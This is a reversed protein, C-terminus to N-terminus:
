PSAATSPRSRGTTGHRFALWGMATRPAQGSGAGDSFPRGMRREILRQVWGWATTMALYYVAAVAFVELVDFRVQMVMQSRRMLEEVSIVSTLSTAKLLGNVSNGLAPVMQRLAQPLLVRWIVIRPPLGLAEAADRQGPPIALFGGRVIESLYATEHLILSVLACTVVGMRLGLQPLGSYIIVLQILLPTGRFFWVYFRAFWAAPRNGSMRLLALLTGCVLGGVGAAATLWLTVIVGGFIFGNGFTAFFDAFDFASGPM